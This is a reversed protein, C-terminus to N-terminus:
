AVTVKTASQLYKVTTLVQPSISKRSLQEESEEQVRVVNALILILRAKVAVVNALSQHVSQASPHEKSFTSKVKVTVTPVPRPHIVRQPVAATVNTVFKLEKSNLPRKAVRHLRKLPLIFAQKSIVAEDQHTPTQVPIVAM